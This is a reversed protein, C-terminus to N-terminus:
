PRRGLQDLERLVPTRGIVQTFSVKESALILATVVGLHVLRATRGARAV